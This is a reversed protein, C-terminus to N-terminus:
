RFLSKVESFTMPEVAVGSPTGWFRAMWQEDNTPDWHIQDGSFLTVLAVGDVAASYHSWPMAFYLVWYTQGAMLYLPEAFDTGQFGAPEGDVLPHVASALVNGDPLGDFDGMLQVTFQDDDLYDSAGAYFEVRELDYDMAPVYQIAYNSPYGFISGSQPTADANWDDMLETAAATGVLALCVLTTLMIM